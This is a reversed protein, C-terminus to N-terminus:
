LLVEIIVRLKGATLAATGVEIVPAEDAVAKRSTLAADVFDGDADLDTFSDTLYNDEDGDYGVTVTASGDSALAEDAIVYVNLLNANELTRGSVQRLPIVGVAGGDVAFDYEFTMEM